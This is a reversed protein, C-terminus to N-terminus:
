SEEKNTLEIQFARDVHRLVDDALVSGADPGDPVDKPRWVVVTATRPLHGRILDALGPAEHELVVVTGNVDQLGASPAPLLRHLAFVRVPRASSRAARYATAVDAGAAILTAEGAGMSQTPFPPQDLADPASLLTGVRVYAPRAEAHASELAASFENATVPCVVPLPALATLIPLDHPMCHTPGMPALARGSGKGVVTVPLDNLVIDQRIQAFARTLVFASLGLVLPRMGEAALGAAVSVATMERIGVDM